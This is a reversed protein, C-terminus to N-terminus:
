DENRAKSQFHSNHLSKRKSSCLTILQGLKLITRLSYPPQLLPLSIPFLWNPSLNSCVCKDVSHTMKYPCTEHHGWVILLMLPLSIASWLLWYLLWSFTQFLWWFTVCLCSTLLISNAFIVGPSQSLTFDGCVKLKYFIWYRHHVSLSAHYFSTHRYKWQGSYRLIRFFTNKKKTGGEGLGRAVVPRKVKEVTKCKGPCLQLWVTYLWKLSVEEM